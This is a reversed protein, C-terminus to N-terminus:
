LTGVAIFTFAGDEFLNTNAVSLVVEYGRRCTPERQYVAALPPNPHKSVSSVTVVPCANIFIGQDFHIVYHGMSPHSVGFGAGKIVLGAAEVEGGVIRPNQYTVGRFSQGYATAGLVVLFGLTLAFSRNM